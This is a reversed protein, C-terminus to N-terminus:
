PLSEGGKGGAGLHAKCGDCYGVRRETLQLPLLYAHSSPESETAWEAHICAQAETQKGMRGRSEGAAQALLDEFM